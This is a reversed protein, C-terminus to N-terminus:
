FLDMDYHDEGDYHNYYHYGDEVRKGCERCIEWYGWDDSEMDIEVGNRCGCKCYKDKNM